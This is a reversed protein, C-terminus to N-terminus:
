ISVVLGQETYSENFEFSLKIDSHLYVPTQSTSICPGFSWRPRFIVVVLSSAYGSVWVVCVLEKLQIKRFQHGLYFELLSPINTKAKSMKWWNSPQEFNITISFYNLVVPQLFEPSIIAWLFRFSVNELNLLEVWFPGLVVKELLTQLFIYM